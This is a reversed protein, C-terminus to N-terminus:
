VRVRDVIFRYPAAALRAGFSLAMIVAFEIVATCDVESTRCPPKSKEESTIM